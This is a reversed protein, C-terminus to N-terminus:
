LESKGEQGKIDYVKRQLNQVDRETLSITLEHRNTLNNMRHVEGRLGSDHTGIDEKMREVDVKIGALIINTLKCERVHSWMLTSLAGTVAIQITVLIGVTWMLESVEVNM